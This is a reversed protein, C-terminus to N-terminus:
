PSNLPKRQLPSSVAVQGSQGNVLVLRLEQERQVLAAWVPLLVLQYTVTTVQFARRLEALEVASAFAVSKKRWVAKTLMLNYAEKAVAEVDRQYLAAPWDALLRPEYPVLAALEFPLIEKLLWAPPFDMASFILNDFMLLEKGLTPGGHSTPRDVQRLMWMGDAFSGFLMQDRGPESGSTPPKRVEVFGDFAWFPLYVAQAGQTEPEQGTWWARLRGSASGQAKEIAVVAEREDLKFPLLGDPRELTQGSDQILVTTSGCFVCQKALFLTMTLAAGCAPCQVVRRAATWVFGQLRRKLQLDGILRAQDDILSTERLELYHGCYQCEIQSAGPEYHLLGGCRPCDAEIAQGKTKRGHGGKGPAVRGQAIALADRALPHAPELIVANELYDIRQAPDDTTASLWIWPDPFNPYLRTLDHFHQAAKACEGRRLLLYAAMFWLIAKREPVYCRVYGTLSGAQSSVGEGLAKQYQRFLDYAQKSTPLSFTLDPLHAGAWHALLEDLLPQRIRHQKGSDPDRRQVVPQRPPEAVIRRDKPPAYGCRPCTASGALPDFTSGHGCQPCTFQEM